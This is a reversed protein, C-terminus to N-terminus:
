KSRLRSSRPARRRPSPAAPSLRALNGHRRRRLDHGARQRRCALEVDPAKGGFLGIKAYADVEAQALRADPLALPSDTPTLSAILQSETAWRFTEGEPSLFNPNGGNDIFDVSIQSAAAPDNIADALGRMAARMFDEAASPHAAMFARNSYLVGFSGPVGFETPDFLTFEVGARELAGPENSKWGPVGVIEEIAMHALPDFGSVPVVTFDRDIILDAQALMAQVSPPMAFKVGITAGKLDALTTAEGKKIILSDIATRGDVSLVALKADSNDQAFRAVESVSGSSSFQAKNGAILPLNSTSFGSQVQVDLCLEDFYGKQKAVLVEVISAAAAYDFSSLFTIPGAAKNAECRDAPIAKGAEIATTANAPADTDDGCAAATLLLIAALIVSTRRASM